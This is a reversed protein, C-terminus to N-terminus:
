GRGRRRPTAALLHRERWQVLKGSVTTCYSASRKRFCHFGLVVCGRTPPPKDAARRCSPHSTAKTLFSRILARGVACSVRSTRISSARVRKQAVTVTVTGVCRTETLVGAQGATTSSPACLAAACVLALVLRRMRAM